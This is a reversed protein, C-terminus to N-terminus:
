MPLTPCKSYIMILRGQTEMVSLPDSINNGFAKFHKLADEKM